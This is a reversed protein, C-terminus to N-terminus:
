LWKSVDVIELKKIQTRLFITTIDWWVIVKQSSISVFILTKINIKQQNAVIRKLYTCVYYWFYVLLLIM